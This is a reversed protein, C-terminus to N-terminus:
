RQYAESILAVAAQTSPHPDQRPWIV